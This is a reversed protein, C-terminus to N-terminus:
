QPGNKYVKELMKQWKQYIEHGIKGNIIVNKGLNRHNEVIKEMIQTLKWQNKWIKKRSKQDNKANM